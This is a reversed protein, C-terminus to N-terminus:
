RHSEQLFVHSAMIYLRTFLNLTNYWGQNQKPEPHRRQALMSNWTEEDYVKGADEDAGVVLDSDYSDSDCDSHEEESFTDEEEVKVPASM